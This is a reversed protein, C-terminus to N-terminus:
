RVSIVITCIIIHINKEKWVKELSIHTLFYSVGKQEWAKHFVHLDININQYAELYLTTQFDDKPFCIPCLCM